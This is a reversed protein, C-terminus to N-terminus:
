KPHVLRHLMGGLRDATKQSESQNLIQLLAETERLSGLAIAYYRRQETKSPKGSGEALNLAVSLSARQLQDRIYAQTKISQCQSHLQIALDYALFGKIM